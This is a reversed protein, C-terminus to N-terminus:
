KMDGMVFSGPMVDTVIIADFSTKRSIRHQWAARADRKM